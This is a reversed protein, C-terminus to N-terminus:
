WNKKNTQVGIKIQTLILRLFKNLEVWDGVSLLEINTLYHTLIKQCILLDYVIM